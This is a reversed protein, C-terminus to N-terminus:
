FLVFLTGLVCYFLTSAYKSLDPLLNAPVGLVHKVTFFYPLIVVFQLDSVLLNYLRKCCMKGSSVFREREIYM